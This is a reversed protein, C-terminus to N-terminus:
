QYIYKRPSCGVAAKFFKGFFSANSFNLLDSVQQVTYAKSKLLAKAELIVYDKIWEGAFRGSVQHIVLSLYKPTLCMKDAYFSISREEKYHTQVLDLFRNFIKEQRNETKTEPNSKDYKMIWQYGNCFLVQM